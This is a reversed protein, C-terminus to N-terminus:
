LNILLENFHLSLAPVLRNLEALMPVDRVEIGLAIAARARQEGFVTASNFTSGTRVTLDVAEASSAVSPRKRGPAYRRGPALFQCRLALDFGERTM